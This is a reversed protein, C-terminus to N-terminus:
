KVVEVAGNHEVNGTYGKATFRYFYTGAPESAPDWFDDESAINDKHFVRTGWKNYVDLSNIPYGFGDVLGVIIFKDNIGDGNPTVVNPFQLYDNILLITNEATDRCYITNGSPAQNDTRAILRVAYNGPLDAVETYRSFDYVPSKDTLTEVSLPNDRNYQVEWFYKNSSTQPDTMNNLKVKPNLVSPYAPEWAFSAKPASYVVIGDKLVISDTCGDGSTVYYRLDYTGATYTHTPSALQSTIGDGFDWLHSVAYVSHNDFNITLPDCGEFEYPTPIISPLPQQRLHVDITDRTICRTNNQKNTVGVVYRVDGKPEPETLVTPTNQGYPEWVYSYNQTATHRDTADITIQNIGCLNTDDGINPTPTWYSTIRTNTDWVCGFADYITVNIPFTGATDPTLIYAEIDNARHIEAGRYHGLEYDFHYRGATDTSVTDPSWIISDIDVQYQCGGISVGCIDLSWSFVWGNDINWNDCIEINWEGNLPCGILKSFNDAPVYYDLKNLHDSSDQTQVTVTGCTQGAQSYAAPVPPFSYTTNVANSVTALGALLPNPTDAPQGNILTYDANRSFCYNWGLGFPNYISDCYANTNGTGDYTDHSGGGYPIGTYLGSGGGTNQPCPSPATDKYKLIVKGNGYTGPMGYNPCILSLSYDGMFSHEFNVCVSCIDDASEVKRGSPFDDFRVPAKYCQVPCNPGDPIFTKVDNTRSKMDLYSIKQLTLTANDGDYGMNVYLSDRNCIDALTFLTKLPNQATRVRVQPFTTPTCGREDTAKLSVEYCALNVYEDYYVSTLGLGGMTDSTGLDWSFWTTSDTPRYWGTVDTYDCHATLIVGDGLCLNVGQFYQTDYVWVSDWLTADWVKTSDLDFLTKVRGFEYIVGNRTKYFISDIHPTMLECPYKCGVLFTFGSGTTPNWSGCDSCTKMRLTLAQATNSPSAFITYTAPNVDNGTAYWLLPANIGVGDYIFITDACPVGNSKVRLSLNELTFSFAYPSPCNGTITVWYDVGTPYVNATEAKATIRTGDHGVPRVTNHISDNLVLLEIGTSQARLLGGALMAVILLLSYKKM